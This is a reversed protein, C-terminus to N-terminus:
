VKLYHIYIFFFILITQAVLVCERTREGNSGHVTDNRETKNKSKKITYM